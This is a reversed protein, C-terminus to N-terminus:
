PARGRAGSLFDEMLNYTQMQRDLETAKILNEVEARTQRTGPPAQANAIDWVFVAAIATNV